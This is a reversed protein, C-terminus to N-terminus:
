LFVKSYIMLRSYSFKHYVVHSPCMLGIMMQLLTNHYTIIGYVVQMVDNLDMVINHPVLVINLLINGVNLKSALFIGRFITLGV